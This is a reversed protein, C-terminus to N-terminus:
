LNNYSKDRDKTERKKKRKEKKAKADIKVTSKLSPVLSRKPWAWRRPGRRM